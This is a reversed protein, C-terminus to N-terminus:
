IAKKSLYHENSWYIMTQENWNNKEWLEGMGSTAKDAFYNILIQQIERLQIENINFRYTKLLELQLNSLAPSTQTIDM